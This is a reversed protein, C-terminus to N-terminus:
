EKWEVYGYYQCARKDAEDLVARPVEHPEVVGQRIDYRRDEGVECFRYIDGSRRVYRARVAEPAYCASQYTIRM